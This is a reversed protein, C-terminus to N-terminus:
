NYIKDVDISILGGLDKMEEAFVERAQDENEALVIGSVIGNDYVYHVLYQDGTM